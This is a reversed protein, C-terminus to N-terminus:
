GSDHTQMLRLLIDDTLRLRRALERALNMMLLSFLAADEKQLRLLAHKSLVIVDSDERAVATAAHRQMSML